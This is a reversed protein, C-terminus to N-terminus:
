HNVQATGPRRHEATARADPANGVKNRSELVNVMVAPLATLKKSSVVPAPM